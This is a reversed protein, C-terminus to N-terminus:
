WAEPPCVLSVSLCRCCLSLGGLVSSRAQFAATSRHPAPGLLFPAFVDPRAEGGPRTPGLGMHASPSPSRDVAPRAKREARQSKGARCAGLKAAVKSFKPNRVVTATKSIFNREELIGNRPDEQYSLIQDDPWRDMQGGRVGKREGERRGDMREDLCCCISASSRSSSSQLACESESSVEQSPFAVCPM